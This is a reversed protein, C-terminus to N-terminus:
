ELWCVVWQYLLPRDWFRVDLLINSPKGAMEQRYIDPLLAKKIKYRAANADVGSRSKTFM